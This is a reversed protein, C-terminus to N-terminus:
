RVVGGLAKVLQEHIPQLTDMAILPIGYKNLEGRMLGFSEDYQQQYKQRLDKRKGAIEVQM